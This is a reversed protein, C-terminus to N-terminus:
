DLANWNMTVNVVQWKNNRKMVHLGSQYNREDETVSYCAIYYTPHVKKIKAFEFNVNKKFDTSTIFDDATKKVQNHVAAYYKAQNAIYTTENDKCGVLMSAFGAGILVVMFYTHKKM